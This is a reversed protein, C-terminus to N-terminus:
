QEEAAAEARGDAEADDEDDSHPIANTENVCEQHAKKPTVHTKGCHQVVFVSASKKRRPLQEDRVSSKSKSKTARFTHMADLGAKVTDDAHLKRTEDDIRATFFRKLSAVSQSIEVDPAAGATTSHALLAGELKEIASLARKLRREVKAQKKKAKNLALREEEVHRRDEEAAALLEEHHKKMEDVKANLAADEHEHKAKTQALMAAKSKSRERTAAVELQAQSLLLM